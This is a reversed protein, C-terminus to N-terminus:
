WAMAAGDPRTVGVQTIITHPSPETVVTWGGCAGTLSPVGASPVGASGRYGPQASGRGHGM